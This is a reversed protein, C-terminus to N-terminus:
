LWKAGLALVWWLSWALHSMLAWRAINLLSSALPSEAKWLKLVTLNLPWGAFLILALFMLPVRLWLAIAMQALLAVYAESVVLLRARDFPWYALFTRFTEPKSRFLFGFQRIHFVWVSLVGFALGIAVDGENFQAFSALAIGCTLLPGFLMMISLDCLAWRQGWRQSIILLALGALACVAALELPANLFAPVGFLLAMGANVWAWKRVASATVWGKQIVQSGRNRNIRDTGQVHGQYDNYLFAATHLFFTGALAFWSPWRTWQAALAYHNLWAAVAPGLTLSVLEPRCSKLYIRWWAPVALKEIPVLRFTVREIHGEFTEVPIARRDTAFTGLLYSEFEPDNRTLTIYEV